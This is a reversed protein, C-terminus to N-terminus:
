RQINTPQPGTWINVTGLSGVMVVSGGNVLYIPREFWTTTDDYQTAEGIEDVINSASAAQFTASDHLAAVSSASDAFIKWGYVWSGAPVVLDTSVEIANSATLGYRAYTPVAAQAPTVCLMLMAVLVIVPLLRKFKFM